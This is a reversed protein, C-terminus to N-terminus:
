CLEGHGLVVVSGEVAAAVAFRSSYLLFTSVSQIPIRQAAVIASRACGFLPGRRYSSAAAAAAAAADPFLFRV